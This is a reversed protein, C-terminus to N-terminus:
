LPYLAQESVTVETGLARYRRRFRVLPEGEGANTHEVRGVLLAGASEEVRCWYTVVSDAIGAAAFGAPPEAIPLAQEAFKDGGSSRAARVALEAQGGSLVSVSFEGSARALRGTRSRAGLPTALLPPDFSVYTVTGTSCSREGGAAAAVIVVPLPLLSLM